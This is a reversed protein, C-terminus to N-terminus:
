PLKTILEQFDFVVWDAKAAVPERMQVGAYCIFLDAGGPQRAELDTAGDGVMVVTKYGHNQKIQQVAKAKGGSHSTPETPDFGAYEGSTGFLLQNAIINEAPIGLEFAVPKIMQRFGGSVLFVDTSNAKLKKILDAMGPSIRPPRKELCEEVQSLSPKILSLRAALAEEFPVDGTMAKATWKAVAKGAGCFDALEDIGEDMIVTSDVDFCVADANRLTEIADKSPQRNALVASSGDKSVELAAAVLGRSKCVMASRFPPSTFWAPVQSAPLPRAASSRRVPLSSRLGARASILGDM